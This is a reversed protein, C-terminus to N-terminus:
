FSRLIQATFAAGSITGTGGLRCLRLTAQGVASVYQAGVVIGAPLTNPLSFRVVDGVVAGALALSQEECAGTGGFSSFSLSGSASFYTPVTAPNVRFPDGSSGTGLLGTGSVQGGTGGGACEVWETDTGAANLALCRGGNSVYPPLLNQRAASATGGGTGGQAVSALGGIQSFLYDGTQATVSGTRGFVSTVGGAGGCGSGASELKSGDSAVQVCRGATWATQNTGGQSLGAKGSIKSFDYDGEAGVVVGTRGFVSAVAGGGGGGGGGMGTNVVCSGSQATSFYAVVTSADLAAIRNPLFWEHATDYCDVVVDQTGQSHVVAVSTQNTFTASANPSGTSACPGGSSRLGGYEDFEVCYGAPALGGSFTQLLNGNGQKGVIGSLDALSHGHAVVASWSGSVCLYLGAAGSSLAVVEGNTCGNPLTTVVRAPKTMSFASFDPERSQSRLPVTTQAWGSTM